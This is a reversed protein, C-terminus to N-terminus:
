EKDDADTEWDSHNNLDDLDVWAQEGAYKGLPNYAFKQNFPQAFDLRLLDFKINDFDERIQQMLRINQQM